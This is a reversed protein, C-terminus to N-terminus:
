AGKVEEQGEGREWVETVESQQNTNVVQKESSTVSVACGYPVMM